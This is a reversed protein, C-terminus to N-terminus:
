KEACHMIDLVTDDTMETKLSVETRFGRRRYKLSVEPLFTSKYKM